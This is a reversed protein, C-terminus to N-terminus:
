RKLKCAWVCHKSGDSRTIAWHEFIYLLGTSRQLVVNFNINELNYIQEIYRKM